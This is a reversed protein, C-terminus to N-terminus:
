WSHGLRCPPHRTAPNGHQHGSRHHLNDPHEDDADLPHHFLPWRHQHRQSFLCHGCVDPLCATRFTLMGCERQCILAPLLSVCVNPFSDIVLTFTMDSIAGFGFVFVASGISLFIFHMGQLCCRTLSKRSMAGPPLCPYLLLALRVRQTTVGFIALGASMCIAPLPVLWLRMEPEFIGRNRKAFRVIARDVFSGGYVSGFVSGLLPGASMFGIQAPNFNYPAQSFVTSTVSAVVVVWCVGSAYALSTYAVHPFWASYVPYYMTKWLSEDTRTVLQLRLRRPSSPRVPPAPRPLPDLSVVRSLKRGLEHFGGVGPSEEGDARTTPTTPSAAGEPPECPAVFKTEELSLVFLLSLVTMWGALTVYSSRWGSSFAQAGAAMPTLFTGATVGILYVGNATGRQHVFFM